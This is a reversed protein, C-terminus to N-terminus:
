EASNYPSTKPPIIARQYLKKVLTHTDREKEGEKGWNVGLYLCIFLRVKNLNKRM